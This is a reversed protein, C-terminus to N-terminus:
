FLYKYKNIQFCKYIITKCDIYKRLLLSSNHCDNVKDTTNDHDDSSNNYICNSTPMILPAFLVPLMVRHKWSNTDVREIRLLHDKYPMVLIGGIKVFQKIFAEHSEPCAAGCYVRDYKRTCELKLCNGTRAYLIVSTSKKFLAFKFRNLEIINVKYSYLSAFILNM